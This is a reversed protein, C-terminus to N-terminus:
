ARVGFPDVREIPDGGCDLGQRRRLAPFIAPEGLAGPSVRPRFAPAFRPPGYHM